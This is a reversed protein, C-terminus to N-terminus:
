VREHFLPTLAKVVGLQIETRPRARPPHAFTVEVDFADGALEDLPNADGTLTLGSWEHTQTRLSELEAIRKVAGGAPVVTAWSEIVGSDPLAASNLALLLDGKRPVGGKKGKVNFSATIIHPASTMRKFTYESVAGVNKGDVMGKKITCGAIPTITFTQSGGVPVVQRECPRISGGYGAQTRPSKPSLNPFCGTRVWV